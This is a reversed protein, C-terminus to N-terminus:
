WVRMRNRPYVRSSFPLLLPLPLPQLLPLHSLGRIQHWFAPWRVRVVAVLLQWCPASGRVAVLLTANCTM